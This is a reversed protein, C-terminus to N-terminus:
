ADVAKITLDITQGVTCNYFVAWVEEGPLVQISGTWRVGLGWGNSTGQALAIGAEAAEAGAPAICVTIVCLSDRNVGEIAEVRMPRTPRWRLINNTAAISTGVVELLM